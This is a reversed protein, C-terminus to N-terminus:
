FFRSYFYNTGSLSPLKFVSDSPQNVKFILGAIFCLLTTTGLLPVTGLTIAVACSLALGHPNAGQTIQERILVKIKNLVYFFEKSHIQKAKKEVAWLM